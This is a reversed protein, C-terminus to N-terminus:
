ATDAAAGDKLIGNYFGNAPIFSSRGRLRQVGASGNLGAGGESTIVPRRHLTAPRRRGASLDSSTSLAGTRLDDCAPQSCDDPAAQCILPAHTVGSRQMFHNMLGHRARKLTLICM